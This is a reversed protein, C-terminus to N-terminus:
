KSGGLGGETDLSIIKLNTQYYAPANRLAKRRLEDIDKDEAKLLWLSLEM